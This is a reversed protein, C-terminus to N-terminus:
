AQATAFVSGPLAWRLGCRAVNSDREADSFWARRRGAPGQFQRAEGSSRRRRRTRLYGADSTEIDASPREIIVSPSYQHEFRNNCCDSQHHHRRWPKRLVIIIRHTTSRHQAVGFAHLNAGDVSHERIARNPQDNFSPNHGDGSRRDGDLISKRFCTECSRLDSTQFLGFHTRRLDRRAALGRKPRIAPARRPGHLQHDGGM